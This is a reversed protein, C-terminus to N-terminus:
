LQISLTKTRLFANYSNLLKQQFRTRAKNGCRGQGYWCGNITQQPNVIEINLKQFAAKYAKKLKRPYTSPAYATIKPERLTLWERLKRGQDADMQLTCSYTDTM